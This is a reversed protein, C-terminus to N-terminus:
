AEAARPLLDLVGYLTGLSMLNAPLNLYVIERHQARAERLWELLLGLAASDLESVASLDVRSVPEVFLERGRALLVAASRLTLPGRVRFRDGDRVIM